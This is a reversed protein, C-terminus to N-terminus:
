LLWSQFEAGSEVTASGNTCTKWKNTKHKCWVSPREFSRVCAWLFLQPRLMLLPLLLSGSRSWVTIALPAPRSSVCVSVHGVDFYFQARHRKVRFVSFMAALKGPDSHNNTPKKEWNKTTNLLLIEKKTRKCLRKVAVSPGRAMQCLLSKWIGTFIVHWIKCMRSSFSVHKVKPKNTFKCSFYCGCEDSAVNDKFACLLVLSSCWTLSFDFHLPAVNLADTYMTKIQQQPPWNM